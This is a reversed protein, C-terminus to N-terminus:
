KREETASEILWRSGEGGWSDGYNYGNRYLVIFEAKKKHVLKLKYTVGQPDINSFVKIKTTAVANKGSFSCPPIVEFKTPQYIETYHDLNVWFRAPTNSSDVAETNKCADIWEAIVKNIPEEDPKSEGTESEWPKALDNRADAESKNDKLVAIQVTLDEIKQIREKQAAVRREVEAPTVWENDRRVYGKNRMHALVMADVM